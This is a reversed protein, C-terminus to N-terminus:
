RSCVAGTSAQYEVCPTTCVIGATPETSDMASRTCCTRPRYYGHDRELGGAFELAHSAGAGDDAAREREHVLDHPRPEGGLVEVADSLLEDAAVGACNRRELAEVAERLR